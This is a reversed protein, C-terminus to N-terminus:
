FPISCFFFPWLVLYFQRDRSFHGGKPIIFLFVKEEWSFCFVLKIEYSDPECSCFLWGMEWSTYLRPNIQIYPSLHGQNKLWFFQIFIFFPLISIEDNRKEVRLRDIISHYGTNFRSNLLENYFCQKAVVPFTKKKKKTRVLHKKKM